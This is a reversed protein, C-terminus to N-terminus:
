DGSGRLATDKLYVTQKCRHTDNQLLSTKGSSNLAYLRLVLVRLATLILPCLPIIVACLACWLFFFRPCIQGMFHFAEESYDWIDLKLWINVVFGTLLEGGTIFAAGFVSKVMLCFHTQSLLALVCFSVGGLITMSIHTHGRWVLELLNYAFGGGTALFSLGIIKDKLKSM